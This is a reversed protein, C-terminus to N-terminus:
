LAPSRGGQFPHPNSLLNRIVQDTQNLIQQLSQFPKMAVIAEVLALCHRRYNGLFAHREPITDIDERLYVLTADDSNPPLFEYKVLRYTLFKLLTEMVSSIRDSHGHGNGNSRAITLLTNLAPMSIALSPNQFMDVLLVVFERPFDRLALLGREAWSTGVVAVM